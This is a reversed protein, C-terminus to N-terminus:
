YYVILYLIITTLWLAGVPIVVKQYPFYVMDNNMRKLYFHLRGSSFFVVSGIMIGLLVKDIGLMTNFPHGIIGTMKLPILTIAYMLLAVGLAWYIETHKKTIKKTKLWEFFWMSASVLLGGVWLGVIVDDIGLSRSFGVGAGVAITCLPCIAYTKSAFFLPALLLLILTHIKKGNKKRGAKMNQRYYGFLVIVVLFLFVIGIMIETNRKGEVLDIEEVASNVDKGEVMGHLKELIPDVGQYCKGDAFLLPIGAQQPNINCEKIKEEFKSINEKNEQLEIEVIDIKENLKEESIKERVTHCYPCSVGWFLTVQEKALSPLPFLLVLLIGLLLKKLNTHNFIIYSV